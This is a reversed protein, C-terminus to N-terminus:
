KPPASNSFTKLTKQQVEDGRTITGFVLQEIQRDAPQRRENGSQAGVTMKEAVRFPTRIFSLGWKKL